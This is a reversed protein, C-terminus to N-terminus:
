SSRFSYPPCNATAWIADLPLTQDQVNFYQDNDIPIGQRSCLEQQITPDFYCPGAQNRLFAYRFVQEAAQGKCEVVSAVAENALFNPFTSAPTATPLSLFYPPTKSANRMYIDFDDPITWSHVEALPIPFFCNPPSYSGGSTICNTIGALNFVQFVRQPTIMTRVTTNDIGPNVDVCGITRCSGVEFNFAMQFNVISAMPFCLGIPGESNALGVNNALDVVNGVSCSIQGDGTARTVTYLGFYTTSPASGVLAVNEGNCTLTPLNILEDANITVNVVTGPFVSQGGLPSCFTASPPTVDVQPNPNDQNCQTMNSLQAVEQDTLANPYLVVHGLQGSFNIGVQTSQACIEPLDNPNQITIAPGFLVGDLFFRIEL